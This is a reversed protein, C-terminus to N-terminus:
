FVVVRSPAQTFLHFNSLAGGDDSVGGGWLQKEFEM